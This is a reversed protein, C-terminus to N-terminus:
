KIVVKPQATLKAVKGDAAAQTVCEVVGECLEVGSGALPGSPAHIWRPHRLEERWRAALFQNSDIRGTDLCWPNGDWAENIYVFAGIRRADIFATFKQFWDWAGAAMAESTGVYVDWTSSEWIGVPKGAAEAWDCMLGAKELNKRAFADIGCWDVLDERPWCREFETSGSGAEFCWVLACNPAFRRFELAVREYAPAVLDLDHGEHPSSFEPLIRVFCPLGYDALKKVTDSVLGDLGGALLLPISSTRKKTVPHINLFDLSVHPIRGHQFQWLLFKPLMAVDSAANAGTGLVMIHMTSIPQTAPEAVLELYPTLGPIFQGGMHLVRGVPPAYLSTM